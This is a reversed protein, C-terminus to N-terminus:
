WVPAFVKLIHEGLFCMIFKRRMAQIIMDNVEFGTENWFNNLHIGEIWLFRLCTLGEM